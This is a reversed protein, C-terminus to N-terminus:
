SSVAETIKGDDLHPSTVVHGCRGSRASDGSGSPGPMAAGALGMRMSQYLQYLRKQRSLTGKIGRGHTIHLSTPRIVMVMM